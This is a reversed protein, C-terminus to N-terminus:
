AAEPADFGGDMDVAEIADTHSRCYYGDKVPPPWSCLYAWDDAYPHATTRWCGDWACRIKQGVDNRGTGRRTGCEAM